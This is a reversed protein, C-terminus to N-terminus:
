RARSEARTHVVCINPRPRCSCRGDRHCGYHFACVLCLAKTDTSPEPLPELATCYQPRDLPDRFYSAHSKAKRSAMGLTSVSLSTTGPSLYMALSVCVRACLCTWMGVSLGTTDSSTLLHGISTSYQVHNYWM